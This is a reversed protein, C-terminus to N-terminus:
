DNLEDVAKEFHKAAGRGYKKIFAKRMEDIDMDSNEMKDGVWSLVDDYNLKAEELSQQLFHKFDKM